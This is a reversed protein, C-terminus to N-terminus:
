RIMRKICHDKLSRKLKHIQYYDRQLYNNTHHWMRRCVNFVCREDKRKQGEFNQGIRTLLMIFIVNNDQRLSKNSFIQQQICIQGNNDILDREINRQQHAMCHECLQFLQDFIGIFIGIITTLSFKHCSLCIDQLRTFPTAFFMNLPHRSLM